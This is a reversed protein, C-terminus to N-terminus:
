DVPVKPRRVQPHVRALRLVGYIALAGAIFFAIGAWWPAGEAEQLVAIGITVAVIPDIVTLGAIVLDPPGSAYATQVFYGGLATAALLAVVCLITLWEFGQAGNILITQIRGIVVKALTAVFGYLVGAGLIFIIAKFRHRLFIFALLFLVTIIGLLVLVIVLERETIEKSSTTFTAVTVFLAVGVVCFLVARITEKTLKVKSVRSNVITTIVLAVAGLPQVVTIPALTLSFLQFVVALGLMLTGVVWSPRKLLAFMQRASLGSDASQTQAEVKNVGRHQFQAGLALFCAGVLAIPIGLAENPTLVQQSALQLM